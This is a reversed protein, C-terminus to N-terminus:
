DLLMKHFFLLLLLFGCIWGCVNQGWVDLNESITYILSILKLTSSKSNSDNHLESWIVEGRLSKKKGKNLYLLFSQLIM